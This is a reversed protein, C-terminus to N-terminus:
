IIPGIQPTAPQKAASGAPSFGRAYLELLGTPSSYVLQYARALQAAVVQANATPVTQTTRGWLLVYDPWRVLPYAALDFVAPAGQTDTLLAAGPRWVLPFYGTQAEYNEFNFLHREVSLYGAAHPFPNIYSDYTKGNPMHTVNGYTLAALTAGPRLYPAASRYEDIGTALTRYHSYRFGLLLVALLGGVGLIFQQLRRPYPVTSLLGLVLLYSCLALRPRVISGGAIADPMWIYAVALGIIAVAWAGAVAVAQLVHSLCNPESQFNYALYHHFPHSANLAM